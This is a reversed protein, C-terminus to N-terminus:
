ILNTYYVLPHNVVVLCLCHGLNGGQSISNGMVNGAVLIRFSSGPSPCCDGPAVCAVHLLKDFHQGHPRKKSRVMIKRGQHHQIFVCCLRPVLNSAQRNSMPVSEDSEPMWTWFGLDALKLVNLCRLLDIPIKYVKLSEIQKASRIQSSCGEANELFQCTNADLTFDPKRIRLAAVESSCGQCSKKQTEKLLQLLDKQDSGFLQVSILCLRDYIQLDAANTGAINQLNSSCPRM